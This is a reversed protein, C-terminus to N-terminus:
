KVDNNEGGKVKIKVGFEKLIPILKELPLGLINTYSGKFEKVFDCKKDQIGYAGARDLYVGTDLYGKIQKDTLKRFKM